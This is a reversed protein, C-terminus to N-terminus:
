LDKTIEMSTKKKDTWRETCLYDPIYRGWPMSLTADSPVLKPGLNYPITHSIMKFSSCIWICNASPPPLRPQVIM